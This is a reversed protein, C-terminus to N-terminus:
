DSVRETFKNRIEEAFTIAGNLLKYQVEKKGDESKEKKFWTKEQNLVGNIQNITASEGFVDTLICEIDSVKFFEGKGAKTIMDLVLIMKEKFSKLSKIQPYREMNIEDVNLDKYKSITKPRAKVSKSIVSKKDKTGKFNAQEVYKEGSGTLIYKKPTAKPSDPSDMILAKHVLQKIVDSINKPLKERADNYLSKVTESTFEKISNNKENFYVACVAVDIHSKAGKQNLFERLSMRNFDSASITEELKANSLLQNEKIPIVTTAVTTRAMADVAMPLLRSIFEERERAIIDEDGEAEFEIGGIKFRIKNQM